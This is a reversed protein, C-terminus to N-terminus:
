LTKNKTVESVASSCGWYSEKHVDSKGRTGLQENRMVTKNFDFNRTMLSWCLLALAYWLISVKMIWLIVSSSPM